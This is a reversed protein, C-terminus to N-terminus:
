KAISGSQVDMCKVARQYDAYTDCGDCDVCESCWRPIFSFRFIIQGGEEEYRSDMRVVSSNWCDFCSIAWGCFLDKRDVDDPIYINKSNFCMLFDNISLFYASGLIEDIRMFVNSLYFQSAKIRIGTEIEEWLLPINPPISNLVAVTAEDTSFENAIKFREDEAMLDGVLTNM